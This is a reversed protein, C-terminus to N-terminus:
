REPLIGQYKCALGPRSLYKSLTFVLLSWKREPKSTSQSRSIRNSTAMKVNERERTKKKEKAWVLHSFALTLGSLWMVWKTGIYLQYYGGNVTFVGRCTIITVIELTIEWKVISYDKRYLLAERHRGTCWRHRWTTVWKEHQITLYTVLHKIINCTCFSEDRSSCM